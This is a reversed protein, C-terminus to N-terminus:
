SLIWKGNGSTFYDALPIKLKFCDGVNHQFTSQINTENIELTSLYKGYFRPRCYHTFHQTNATRESVIWKPEATKKQFKFQKHTSLHTVEAWTKKVGNKYIDCKQQFFLVSWFFCCFFRKFAVCSIYFESVFLYLLNELILIKSVFM